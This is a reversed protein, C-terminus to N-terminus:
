LVHRDVDVRETHPRQDLTAHALDHAFTGAAYANKIEHLAGALDGIRELCESLTWAGPAAQPQQVAIGQAALLSALLHGCLWHGNTRVQFHEGDHADATCRATRVRMGGAFAADLDGATAAAPESYTRGDPSDFEAAPETAAAIRGADAYWDLEAVVPDTCTGRQHYIKGDAEPCGCPTTGATEPEQGTV